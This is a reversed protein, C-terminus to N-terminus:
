HLPHYTESGGSRTEPRGVVPGAAYIAWPCQTVLQRRSTGFDHTKGPCRVHRRCVLVGFSSRTKHAGLTRTECTWANSRLVAMDPMLLMTALATRAAAIMGAAACSQGVRGTVITTVNGAPLPDSTKARIRPERRESIKPWCTIMSFTPPPPPM